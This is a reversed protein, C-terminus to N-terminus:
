VVHAPLTKLYRHIPRAKCDRQVACRGCIPFSRVMGKKPGRTIKGTFLGVYTQYARLVVVEVGMCNLAPIAKNTREAKSLASYRTTSM